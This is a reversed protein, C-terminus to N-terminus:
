QGLAALYGVGRPASYHRLVMGLKARACVGHLVSMPAWGLAGVRKAEAPGLAALGGMRGSDVAAVAQEDWEAAGPVLYLPSRHTLGASCDGAAIVVTRLGANALGQVLGTGVAVLADFGAHPPVAVPLIVRDGNLLLALVALGLPLSGSRVRPYQLARAVTSLAPASVSVERRIDPRGVGALEACATDHVARDGAALLVFLDADPLRDITARVQERVVAVGQPLTKSVDDVLLPATPLIAAGLLM